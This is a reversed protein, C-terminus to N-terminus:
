IGRIVSPIDSWIYVLYISIIIYEIDIVQFRFQLTDIIRLKVNKSFFILWEM